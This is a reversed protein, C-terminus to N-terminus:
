SPLVYASVFVLSVCIRGYFNNRGTCSPINHKSYERRLIM